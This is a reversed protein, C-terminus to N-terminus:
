KICEVVLNYVENNIEEISRIKGNNVCKIINWGYKNAVKLATMYSNRLYAEDKEHIDKAQEGTFKNERSKTLELGYEPPMDLFVVLNPKPLKLLNYEYDFLWSLFSEQEAGCLKSAQHIANSTTYRDALIITGQELVTKWNKLYSAARDVAYFSSAVYPNVDDPKTGFEGALYMKVLASSNSNYDPFQIKLVDKNSSLKKLLLETHTQKGSGDVGEIVILMCLGGKKPKGQWM